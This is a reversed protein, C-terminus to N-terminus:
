RPRAARCRQAGVNVRLYGSEKLLQGEDLLGSGRQASGTQAYILHRMPATTLIRGATFLRPGASAHNLVLLAQVPM